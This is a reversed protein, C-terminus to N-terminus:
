NNAEPRTVYHLVAISAKRQFEPSRMYESFGKMAAYGGNAIFAKAQSDNISPKPANSQPDRAHQLMWRILEQGKPTELFDSIKRADDGNVHGHLAPAVVEAMVEEPVTNLQDFLGQLPTGNLQASERAIGMSMVEGVHFDVLLRRLQQDAQPDVATGQAYAGVMWAFALLAFVGGRRRKM